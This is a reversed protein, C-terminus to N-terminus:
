ELFVNIDISHAHWRRDSSVADRAIVYATARGPCIAQVHLSTYHDNLPIIRGAYDAAVNPALYCYGVPATFRTSLRISYVGTEGFLLHISAPCQIMPSEDICEPQITTKEIKLSFAPLKGRDSIWDFLRIYKLLVPEPAAASVSSAFTENMIAAVTSLAIHRHIAIYYPLTEGSLPHNRLFVTVSRKLRHKLRRTWPLIIEDLSTFPVVSEKLKTISNLLQENCFALRNDRIRLTRIRVLLTNLLTEIVQDDHIESRALLSVIPVLAATFHPPPPSTKQHRACYEILARRAREHYMCARTHHDPYDISSFHRYQVALAYVRAATIGSTLPLLCIDRCATKFLNLIEEKLLRPSMTGNKKEATITYIPVTPHQVNPTQATISYAEYQASPLLPLLSLTGAHGIIIHPKVLSVGFPPHLGLTHMSLTHQSSHMIADHLLKKNQPTYAHLATITPAGTAPLSIPYQPASHLHFPLMDPFPSHTIVAVSDSEKKIRRASTSDIPNHFCYLNEPAICTHTDSHEPALSIDIPTDPLSQQRASLLSPTETCIQIDLLMEGIPPDQKGTFVGLVIRISASTISLTIVEDPNINYVTRLTYAGNEELLIQLVSAHVHIRLYLTNDTIGYVSAISLTHYRITETFQRCQTKVTIPLLMHAALNDPLELRMAIPGSHLSPKITCRATGDNIDVSITTQEIRYRTETNEKVIITKGYLAQFYSRIHETVIKQAETIVDDNLQQFSDIYATINKWREPSVSNQFCSISDATEGFLAHALEEDTILRLAANLDQARILPILEFSFIQEALFHALNPESRFLNEILSVETEEDGARITNILQILGDESLDPNHHIRLQRLVAATSHTDDIISKLPVYLAREAHKKEIASLAPAAHQRCQSCIGHLYATGNFPQNGIYVRFSFTEGNKSSSEHRVDAITVAESPPTYVTLRALTASEHDTPITEIRMKGTQHLPLALLERHEYSDIILATLSHASGSLQLATNENDPQRAPIRLCQLNKGILPFIHLPLLHFPLLSPLANIPIDSKGARLRMVTRPLIVPEAVTNSNWFPLSADIMQYHICHPTKQTAHIFTFYKGTIISNNNRFSSLHTM